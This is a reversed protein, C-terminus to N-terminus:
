FPIVDDISPKDFADSPNIIPLTKEELEYEIPENNDILCHTPCETGREYYRGSPIHYEFDAIGGIEGQFSMKTKLNTFTTYDESIGNGFNRYICYGDHTQNRFDASGSVDYLTPSEYVGSENKKMKTPHAILFIMVNNM